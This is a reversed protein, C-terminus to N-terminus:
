HHYYLAHCVKAFVPVTHTHMLKWVQYFNTLL